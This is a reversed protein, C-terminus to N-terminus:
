KCLLLLYGLYNKLVYTQAGSDTVVDKLKYIAMYKDCRCTASYAVKPLLRHRM